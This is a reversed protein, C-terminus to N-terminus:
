VKRLYSNQKGSRLGTNTRGATTSNVSIRGAWDQKLHPSQMPSGSIKDHLKRNMHGHGNQM